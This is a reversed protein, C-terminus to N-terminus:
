KGTQPTICIQGSDMTYYIKSGSKKIRSITEVAPHGYRNRKACSIVSVEPKIKELFIESSSYRSGHHNVKYFDVDQLGREEMMRREGEASIDGAFIGKFEGLSLELALSMDNRDVLGEKGPYLCQIKMQKSTIKEGQKMFIIPIDHSKAQAILNEYAEDRIIYQSLVLKRIDYGSEMVELCGSIHDDDAHSVFWYDIYKIGKSKLFPLIRYKGVGAVSTSGGDIFLCIGDKSAIFIGDGQGVDLIDIESHPVGHFHIIGVLLFLTAFKIIYLGQKLGRKHLMFKEADIGKERTEMTMIGEIDLNKRAQERNKENMLYMCRLLICLIAYYVVIKLGSPKGVIQCSGPLHEAFKCVSQMGSLVIGVPKLICGSLIGFKLGVISGLLGLILIGGIIPLILINIFLSYPSVEYYSFAVLPLTTLFLGLSMWIGSLWAKQRDKIQALFAEFWSEKGHFLLTKEVETRGNENGDAFIKGTIGIGCIAVVSFDFGTYQLLFPNQILLVLVMVGLSNLLDNTRGLVQAGMVLLMMGIARQTSVAYGTMQGYLLIWVGSIMGSVLFGVRRKRLARYFVMGIMSVHLGSIALIHSIGSSQYLEKIESDLHTKDGYLMAALVGAQEKEMVQELVKILQERLDQLWEWLLVKTHCVDLVQCEMLSFDIKQAYYFKRSDFQGENTACEFMKLKGELMLIDGILFEDSDFYTIISNCPVTNEKLGVACKKLYYRCSNNKYEKKYIQGSVRVQQSDNLQEMYNQRFDTERGYQWVAAWFLSLLFVMWLMCGRQRREQYDKYLTCVIVCICVGILQFWGTM